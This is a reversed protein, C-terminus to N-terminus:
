RIINNCYCNVSLLNGELDVTAKLEILLYNELYVTFKIPLFFIEEFFYLNSICWVSKQSKNVKAEEAVGAVVGVLDM